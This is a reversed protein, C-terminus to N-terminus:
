DEIRPVFKIITIMKAPDRLLQRGLEDAESLSDMLDVLLRVSRLMPRLFYPGFRLRGNHTWVGGISCLLGFEISPVM